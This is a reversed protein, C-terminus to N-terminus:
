RLEAVSLRSRRSFGARARKGVVTGVCTRWDSVVAFAFAIALVVHLPIPSGGIHIQADVPIAYIGVLAVVVLSLATEVM